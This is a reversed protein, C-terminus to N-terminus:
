TQYEILRLANSVRSSSARLFGELQKVTVGHRSCAEPISMGQSFDKFALLLPNFAHHRLSPLGLEMLKESVHTRNLKFRDAVDSYIGRCEVYASYLRHGSWFDQGLIKKPLKNKNEGPTDLIPTSFDHLATEASDYLTALALSYGECSAVYNM